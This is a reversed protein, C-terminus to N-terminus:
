SALAVARQDQAITDDRAAPVQAAAPQHARQDRAALVEQTDCVYVQVGTDVTFQKHKAM